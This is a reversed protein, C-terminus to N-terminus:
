YYWLHRSCPHLPWRSKSSAQIPGFPQILSGPFRLPEMATTSLPLKPMSQPQKTYPATVLRGRSHLTVGMLATSSCKRVTPKSTSFATSAVLHHHCTVTSKVSPFVPYKLRRLVLSIPISHFWHKKFNFTRNASGVYRPLYTFFGFFVVSYNSYCGVAQWKSKKSWRM